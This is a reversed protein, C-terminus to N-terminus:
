MRHQQTKCSINVLHKTSHITSQIWIRPHKKTVEKGDCKVGHVRYERSLRQPQQMARCITGSTYKETSAAYYKWEDPRLHLGNYPQLTPAKLTAKVPLTVHICQFKLTSQMHIISLGLM